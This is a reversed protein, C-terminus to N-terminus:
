EKQEDACVSCIVPNDLEELPMKIVYRTIAGCNPDLHYKEGGRKTIYVTTESPIVDKPNICNECHKMTEKIEKFQVGEVIKNIHFCGEYHYTTKEKDELASDTVYVYEKNEEEQFSSGKIDKNGTWARVTARQIIPIEDVVKLPIPVKISYAVVLDIEDDEMMFQSRGFDLGKADGKINYNEIQTESIYNNFIHKAGQIGITDILFELADRKAYDGLQNKYSIIDKIGKTIENVNNMFGQFTNTIDDIVNVVRQKYSSIFGTLGGNTSKEEINVSNLESINDEIRWGNNVNEVFENGQIILKDISNVLEQSNNKYNSYVDQQADALGMKEYGYGYVALQNATQDLAHQVNDQIYIVRMFYAVFIVAFIFIPLAFAAEITLSGNKYKEKM